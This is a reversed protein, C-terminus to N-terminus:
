RLVPRRIPSEGTMELVCRDFVADPDLGRVFDSSIGISASTSAGTRNNVGFTVDGTPGQAARARAECREAAQAPTVPTPTCASVVALTVGLIVSRIM